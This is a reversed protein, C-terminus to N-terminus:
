RLERPLAQVILAFIEESSGEAPILRVRQPEALVLELFGDRVRQHYELPRDDIRSSGNGVANRARARRLGEAPDLDLVVTLDPALGGTALRNVERVAAGDVGGVHGQYVVSSDAFRDCLVVEGRELAPRIVRRVNERRAAELLFLETLPDPDFRPDLLAERAAEALPTGGPERSVTVVHGREALYAELLRVQTSKGCGEGGEFTIFWGRAM